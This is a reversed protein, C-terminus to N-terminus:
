YPARLAAAVRDCTLARPTESCPSDKGAGASDATPNPSPDAGPRANRPKVGLVITSLGATRVDMHDSVPHTGRKRWKFLEYTEASIASNPSEPAAHEVPQASDEFGLPRSFSRSM